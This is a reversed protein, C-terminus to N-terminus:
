GLHGFIPPDKFGQQTSACACKSCMYAYIYRKSYIEAELASLHASNPEGHGRLLPRDNPFVGLNKFHVCTVCIRLFTRLFRNKLELKVEEASLHTFNPEGHGRLLPRENPFGRLNKFHVCIVCIRLFRNKLELEVGRCIFPCFLARRSRSAFAKRKSVSGFIKFHVFAVCIRLFTRLSRNKHELM